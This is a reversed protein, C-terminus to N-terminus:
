TEELKHKRSVKCRALLLQQVCGDRKNVVILFSYFCDKVVMMAMSRSTKGIIINNRAMEKIDPIM